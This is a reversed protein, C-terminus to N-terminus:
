ATCEEIEENLKHCRRGGRDGVRMVEEVNWVHGGLGARPRDSQTGGPFPVSQVVFAATDPRLMISTPHAAHICQARQNSLKCVTGVRHKACLAM